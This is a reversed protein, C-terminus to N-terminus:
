ANFVHEVLWTWPKKNPVFQPKHEKDKQKKLELCEQEQLIKM